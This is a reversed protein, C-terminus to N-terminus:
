RRPIRRVLRAAQRARKAAARQRADPAADPDPREPPPASAAESPKAGSQGARAPPRPASGGRRGPVGRYLLGMLKRHLFIRLFRELVPSFNM